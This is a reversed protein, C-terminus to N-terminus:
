QGSSSVVIRCASDCDRLAQPLNEVFFLGTKYLRYIEDLTKDLPFSAYDQHVMRNRENGLELFAKISEALIESEKTKLSMSDRFEKGFLGFFTNANNGEWNFFTHYQRSIAKNRVFAEVLSSGGSRDKVFGILVNNIGHEFHSAAALLLAKRFNDSASIQLSTESNKQLQQIISSAEEYLRDVSTKEIANV